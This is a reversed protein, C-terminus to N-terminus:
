ADSVEVEIRPEGSARFYERSDGLVTAWDDDRLIGAEVLADEIVKVAFSAINSKDRLRAGKRAPAEFFQYRVRVPGGHPRLRAARACWLVADQAERKMKAGAMPHARCARTYENLGPLRGPITMRQIMRGAGV